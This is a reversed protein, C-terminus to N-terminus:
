RSGTSRKSASSGPASSGRTTVSRRSQVIRLSTTPPTCRRAAPPRARRPRSLFDGRRRHRLWRRRRRGGPRLHERLLRDRAGLYHGIQGLAGFSRGRRRGRAERVLRHADADGGWLESRRASRPRAPRSPRSIGTGMAAARARAARRGAVVVHGLEAWGRYLRGDVVVGAASAQGSRWPSSTTRARAPVSQAVRRARDRQRRERGRGPTSFAHRCTRQRPRALRLPLNSRASLRDGHAPRHNMPVGIVSRRRGRPCAPRSSSGTSSKSFRLEHGHPRVDRREITRGVSGDRAVAGALM